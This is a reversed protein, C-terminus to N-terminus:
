EKNIGYQKLRKYFKEASLQLLEIAKKRNGETLELARLIHKKEVEDVVDKLTPFSDASFLTTAPLMDPAVMGELDRPTVMPGDVLCVAREVVQHLQRVNLEWKCRKLLEFSEPAFTKRPNGRDLTDLFHRVLLPIDEPRARLPPIEVTQGLRAFLDARFEGSQVMTELPRNTASVVYADIKRPTNEGIRYLEGSDLFRLLKVQLELSIDGVEDLFLVGGDALELRGKKDSAATTFAGKAHGFLESEILSPALAPIPVPVYARERRDSAAAYARAFLEKGTGTEGRLLVKAGGRAFRRVADYAAILKPSGGVIQHRLLEGQLLNLHESKLKLATAAQLHESTRDLALAAYVSIATLFELDEPDFFGSKRGRSAYILGKVPNSGMPVCLVSQIKYKKVSESSRLRHDSDTDIVLLALGSQQVRELVTRSVPWQEQPRELDMLHSSMPQFSDGDISLMCVGEPQLHELIAHHITQIVQQPERQELIQQGIEYIALLRESANAATASIPAKPDVTIEGTASPTRVKNMAAGDKGM